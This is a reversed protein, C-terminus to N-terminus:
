FSFSEDGVAYYHAPSFGQIQIQLSFASDGEMDVFHGTLRDASRALHIDSYLFAFELHDAEKADLYM